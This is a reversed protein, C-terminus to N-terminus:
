MRKHGIRRVYTCAHTHSTHTHKLSTHTHTHTHTRTHTYTNTHSHTHTHTHAHTHTHTRTHIHTHTHIHHTHTHTHTSHTYTHTDTHTRAHTRIARAGTAQQPKSTHTESRTARFPRSILSLHLSGGLVASLLAPRQAHSAVDPILGGTMSIGHWTDAALWQVERCGCVGAGYRSVVHFPKSLPSSSLNQHSKCQWLRGEGRLLM